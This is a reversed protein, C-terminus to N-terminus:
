QITSSVPAPWTAMNNDCSSLNLFSANKSLLVVNFQHETTIL